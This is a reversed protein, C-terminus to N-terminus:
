LDGSLFRLTGKKVPKGDKFWQVESVHKSRRLYVRENEPTEAWTKDLKKLNEDILEKYKNRAKLANANLVALRDFVVWGYVDNGDRTLPHKEKDVKDQLALNFLSIYDGPGEFFSNYQVKIGLYYVGGAELDGEAIANKFLPLYEMVAVKHHGPKVIAYSKQAAFLSAAQKGDVFVNNEFGAISPISYFVILAKGAPPVIQKPPNTVVDSQLTSACGSLIVFMGSLIILKLRAMKKEKKYESHWVTFNGM